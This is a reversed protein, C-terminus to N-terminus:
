YSFYCQVLFALFLTRKIEKESTCLSETIIGVLGLLREYKYQCGNTFANRQGRDPGSQVVFSHRDFGENIAKRFDEIQLSQNNRIENEMDEVSQEM